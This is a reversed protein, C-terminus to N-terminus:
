QARGRRPLLGSIRGRWTGQDPELWELEALKGRLVCRRAFAVIADAEDEGTFMLVECRDPHNRLGERKIREMEANSVKTRLTWGEDFFVYRVVDHLEFAAGALAMGADKDGSVNFEFQEGDRKVALFTPTLKGHVRFRTSAKDVALEILTRLEPTM